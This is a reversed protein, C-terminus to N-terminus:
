SRRPLGACPLRPKDHKATVLELQSSGPAAGSPTCYCSMQGASNDPCIVPGPFPDAQDFFIDAESQLDNALVQFSPDPSRVDTSDEPVGLGGQATPASVVSLFADLPEPILGPARVVTGVPDMSVEDIADELQPAAVGRPSREADM